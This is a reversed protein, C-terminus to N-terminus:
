MSRALAKGPNRWPLIPAASFCSKTGRVFQAFPDIDSWGWNDPFDDGPDGAHGERHKTYDSEAATLHLPSGM